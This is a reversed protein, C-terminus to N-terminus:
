TLVHHPPHTELHAPRAAGRDAQSMGLHQVPLAIEVGVVQAGGTLGHFVGQLSAAFLYVLRVERELAEAVDGHCPIRALRRRVVDRADHDMRVHRGGARELGRIGQEILEPVVDYPALLAVEEVDRGIAWLAVLPEAPRPICLRERWRPM